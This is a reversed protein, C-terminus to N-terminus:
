GSEMHSCLGVWFADLVHRRHTSMISKAGIYKQLQVIRDITIKDTRAIRCLIELTQTVSIMDDIVYVFDPESQLAM